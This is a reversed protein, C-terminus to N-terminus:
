TPLRATGGVLSVISHAGGDAVRPVGYGLGARREGSWPNASLLRLEVDDDPRFARGFADLLADQGKRYQWLASTSSCRRVASPLSRSPSRRATSASRHWSWRHAIWATLARSM